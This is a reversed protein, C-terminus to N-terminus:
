REFLLSPNAFQWGAANIATPRDTSCDPEDELGYNISIANGAYNGATLSPATYETKGEESGNLTVATKRDEDNYTLMSEYDYSLTVTDASGDAATVKIGLGKGNLVVLEQGGSTFM